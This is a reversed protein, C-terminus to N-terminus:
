AKGKIILAAENPDYKWNEPLKGERVYYRTLRWIKSEARHLRVTNHIDQKNREIHARMGVARKMLDLLDQPIQPAVKHEDLIQHMRKGTAQKVYLIGHEKKLKEGIMAQPVGQKAYSVVLEEVQKSSVGEPPKGLEVVPKRSKAKGHKKSHMRAM